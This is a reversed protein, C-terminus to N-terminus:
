KITNEIIENRASMTEVILTTLIQQRNKGMQKRRPLICNSQTTYPLKYKM